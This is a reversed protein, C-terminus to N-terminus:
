DAERLTSGVSLTHFERLMAERVRHGGILERTQFASAEQQAGQYVFVAIFLLVFNGNLFSYIGFLVALGQGVRAALGTAAVEDMMRACCPACYVGEM